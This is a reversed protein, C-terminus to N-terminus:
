DFNRQSLTRKKLVSPHHGFHQKFVRSFHSASEFGVEFCVDTVSKDTSLLYQRALQLRKERLWRAPSSGFTTRFDRKFSSVSRGALYAFDAISAPQTYNNEMIKVLDNREPHSFQFLYNGVQPMADTLVFLMELIKLRVLEPESILTGQLYARITKVYAFLEKNPIIKFFPLSLDERQFSYNKRLRFFERILDNTFAFVLSEYAQGEAFGIKQYSLHQAKRVFVAENQMISYATNQYVSTMRGSLVFILHHETFYHNGEEMDKIHCYELVRCDSLQLM